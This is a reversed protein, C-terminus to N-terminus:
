RHRKRHERVKQRNGCVKMECWRRGHNKTRDVFLWLCDDSACEKISAREPSVLLDAAARAVPWLPADLAGAAEAWTWAYGEEVPEVRAHALAKALEAHFTALDAPPPPAGQVDAHLIAFLAERLARARQLVNRAAAPRERAARDLARVEAAALTGAGTSWALLAAYDVLREDEVGAPSRGISNVFDLCPDGGCPNHVDARTVM